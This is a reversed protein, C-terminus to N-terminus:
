NTACQPCAKDLVHLKVLTRRINFALESDRVSWLWGTNQFGKDYASHWIGDFFIMGYIQVLVSFIIAFKFLKRTKSYIESTLYPILLIVLFPIIDAAMRYGFSWGGYWHKWKGMVLTHAIAICAFIIYEFSVSSIKKKFALYMGVLSFIFVPSYILIGKNTSLWLGLFGEPFKSLWESFLQNSYGQNSIDLYFTQNYWYFLLIAPLFGLTFWIIRLFLNKNFGQKGLFILFLFPVFLAATPRSLIALGMFVTAFFTDLNKGSEFSKYLFYLSLIVFLQLTGHQWLAQSVLAFNITGFLYILTLLLSLQKNKLLHKLLLLYFFGGSFSVILAGGIHGLIALNEFNIDIGFLLPFIYIPVVLLGTIIPFATIYHTIVKENQLQSVSRFYFPILGKEFNKDDPHPYRDKIFSYYSDAYLTKEELITIPIFLNPVTDESQIALKNVGLLYVILWSFFYILFSGGVLM